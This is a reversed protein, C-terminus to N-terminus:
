SNKGIKGYFSREKPHDWVKQDLAKVSTPHTTVAPRTSESLHLSLFTFIASGVALVFCFFAVASRITMWEPKHSVSSKM